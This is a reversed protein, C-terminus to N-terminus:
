AAVPHLWRDLDQGPPMRALLRLCTRTISELQLLRERATKAETNDIHLRGHHVIESRLGALRGIGCRDTIEGPALDPCLRAHLLDRVRNPVDAGGMAPYVELATYLFLLKDIPNLTECGRRYWRAALQFRGRDEQSLEGLNAHGRGVELTVVGLDPDPQATMTIPGDPVMFFQGPSSPVGEWENQFVLGPFALDILAVLESIRKAGSPSLGALDMPTKASIWLYCPGPFTRTQLSMGGIGASGGGLTFVPSTHQVELPGAQVVAELNGSTLIPVPEPPPTLNLRFVALYPILPFPSDM